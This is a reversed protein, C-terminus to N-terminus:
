VRRSLLPLGGARDDAPAAYLRVKGEPAEEIHLTPEVGHRRLLEQFAEFAAPDKRPFTFFDSSDNRYGIYQNEGLWRAWLMNSVFRMRRCLPHTEELATNNLIYRFVSGDKVFSYNLTPALQRM